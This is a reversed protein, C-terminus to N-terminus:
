DVVVWSPRPNIPSRRIPWRDFGFVEKLARTEGPFSEWNLEDFALVSGKTIRDRVLELCRKTPAYLDLDFYALAIITEPHRELYAELTATVDGAVIEYRKIHSLPSESEHYALVEDLYQEYEPTTSWGGVALKEGDFKSIEPFGSFSDFGVIRRTHNFPEYMGRFSSFLALNQGWRCGFEVVVGQVDLIQRYVDHLILMRSLSQRNIFLGLNGLLEEDPIPCRRFTEFFDDRKSLENLSGLTRARPTLAKEIEEM